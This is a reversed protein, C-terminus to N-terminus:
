AKKSLTGQRGTPNLTHRAQARSVTSHAGAKSCPALMTLTEALPASLLTAASLVCELWSQWCDQWWRGACVRDGLLCRGDKGAQM